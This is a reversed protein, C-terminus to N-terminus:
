FNCCTAKYKQAIKRAEVKGSVSFVKICKNQKFIEVFNSYETQIYYAKLM